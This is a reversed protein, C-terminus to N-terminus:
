RLNQAVKRNGEVVQLVNQLHADTRCAVLYDSTLKIGREASDNVVSIVSTHKCSRQYAPSDTWQDVPLYLFEDELDLLTITFWSDVGVLDHLRTTATLTPFMPKGFGAGFRKTPATLKGGVPRVDLLARALLEKEECPVASGFLALPIMEETLYWLHRKFASMAASSVTEDVAAYQLLQKFLILDHWAADTASTCTFWWASYVHSAFVVFTRLKDTQQRTTITGLPLTAIQEQLMTIKLGYILKAMWRAKHLAGPRQFKVMHDDSTGRLFVVCLQAFEKYDDRCFNTKETALKLVHEACLKLMLEGSRDAPVNVRSLERAACDHELMNFNERFRVFMSVEPSKSVEIKLADFVQKLIVEGIHHRCGSWLAYRALRHQIAVCAATLHGTNAATTDFVMNVVANNCFWKELLDFTLDAVIEGTRRDTGAEYRAAGLFKICSTTSVLVALREERINPNNLSPMVKSDWHVSVRPPVITSWQQRQKEALIETVERRSRDATAYSASVRNIDGGAEEILARTFSSQQTPTINMRTALAVIKPRRLIDHPIFATTGTRKVRHHSRDRRVPTTPTTTIVENEEADEVSDSDSNSVPVSKTSAEHQQQIHRRRRESETALRQDRRDRKAALIKDCAGFTALRDTRMSALFARDEECKILKDVNAPWLPFTAALTANMADLQRLCAPSQRRSVSIARLKNNSDLLKVIKACCKKEVLMPINAKDYFPMVEELVLKASQYRTRNITNGERCHFMMCRLVDNASPLRAGRIHKDELTVAAGLGFVAQANRTCTASPKCVRRNRLATTELAPRECGSRTRSSSTSASPGVAGTMLEPTAAPLAEM